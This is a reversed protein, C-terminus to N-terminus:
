QAPSSGTVGGLARSARRPHGIFACCTTCGPWAAICPTVLGAPHLPKAALHDLHWAHGVGKWPRTDDRVPEREIERVARQDGFLRVPPQCLRDTSRGAPGGSIGVTVENPWRRVKASRRITPGGASLALRLPRLVVPKWLHASHTGVTTREPEILNPAPLPLTFSDATSPHQPRRSPPQRRAATADRRPAPRPPPPYRLHRTGRCTNANFM